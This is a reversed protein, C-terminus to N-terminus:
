ISDVCKRRYKPRSNSTFLESKEDMKYESNTREQDLRRFRLFERLRKTCASGTLQVRLGRLNYVCVGYSKM